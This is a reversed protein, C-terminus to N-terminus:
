VGMHVDMSHGQIRGGQRTVGQRGQNAYLVNAKCQWENVLADGFLHKWTPDFPMFRGRWQRFDLAEPSTPMAKTCVASTRFSTDGRLM